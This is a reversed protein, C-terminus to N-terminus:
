GQHCEETAAAVPTWCAALARCAAPAHRTIRRPAAAPAMAAQSARSARSRMAPPPARACGCHAPCSAKGKAVHLATGVRVRVGYCWGSWLSPHRVPMPWAPQMHTHVSCRHQPTTAPSRPLHRSCRLPSPRRPRGGVPRPTVGPARDAPNRTIRSLSGPQPCRLYPCRPMPGLSILAASRICGGCAIWPKLVRLPARPPHDM